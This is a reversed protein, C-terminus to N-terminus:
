DDDEDESYCEFELMRHSNNIGLQICKARTSTGGSHRTHRLFLKRVIEAPYFMICPIEDCDLEYGYMEFWERMQRACDEILDICGQYIMREDHSDLNGDESGCLIAYELKRGNELLNDAYFELSEVVDPMRTEPIQEYTHAQIWDALLSIRNSKEYDAHIKELAEDTIKSM